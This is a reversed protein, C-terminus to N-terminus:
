ETMKETEQESNGTNKETEGQDQTSSPTTEKQIQIPIMNEMIKAQPAIRPAELQLIGDKANLNCNIEEIKVGEPIAWKRSFSRSIQSNETKEEHKGEITIFNDVTKVSLEEPTYGDINLNIQFKNSTLIVENKEGGAGPAFTSMKSLTESTEPELAAAMLVSIPTVLDDMFNDM